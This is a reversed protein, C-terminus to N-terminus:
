HSFAAKLSEIKFMLLCNLKTDKLWLRIWFGTCSRLHRTKRFYKVNLLLLNNKCFERDSINPRTRCIDGTNFFVKKTHTHKKKTKQNKWTMWFFINVVHTQYLFNHWFSSKNIMHFSIIPTIENPIEAFVVRTCVVRICNNDILRLRVKIDIFICPNISFYFTYMSRSFPAWILMKALNNCLHHGFITILSDM